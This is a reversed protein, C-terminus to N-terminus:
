ADTVAPQLEITTETLYRYRPVPLNYPAPVAQEVRGALDYTSGHCPCFFCGYTKGPGEWSRTGPPLYGVNCGLHTCHAEVILYKPNISRHTNKSGDPQQSQESEPDALNGYHELGALMEPTRHLIYVTTLWGTQLAMIQGPQLKPFEVNVILPNSKPNTRWSRIFPLWSFLIGAGAVLATSIGLIKRRTHNKDMGGLVANLPPKYLALSPTALRHM